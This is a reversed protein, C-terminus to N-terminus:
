AGLTVALLGGNVVLVLLTSIGAILRILAHSRHKGMMARDGTVLILPILAFPIGFSLIVQSIILAATPEVGVAVIIVAPIVTVVRRVVPPIKKRILGSMIEAGAYAGVATSALSSALLGVAFLAAVNAGSIDLLASYASNLTASDATGGIVEAGILLLVLNVGGALALAFTVDIRTAVLRQKIEHVGGSLSDRAFGSHAYIAHPMVTAGLIAAALVLSDFGQLRPLIGTLLQGTDITEGYLSAGFGIAIVLLLAMIIREFVRSGWRSHTSLLSISVVGVISAGLWLPIGFLLYLAVAGGVVEAVDTAMAVLEGQLWYGIRISRSNIRKGMVEPLSQGTVIGLSASLYQVVWAILNGALVVWVLLYGLSAGATINAAVNGPDLYAVGAVFAPGLLSFLTRGRGKM